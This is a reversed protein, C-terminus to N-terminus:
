LISQIKTMIRRGHPTNKINPLLPQLALSLKSLDDPNAVDLSTQLVYNGFADNLMESFRDKNLLLVKVLSDTLKNIRLSKEIVNSGFKHLSLSIVNSKIHDLITKISEDDGRSLVYQVVYNGFPDLSLNTANGAVEFSLQKRQALNGHDLCRQLVCCGHRHTAIENCHLSATDFIFQNEEPKLKQLCKQVVHNGNLDRSLSVIHPSLSEIILKSEEETSICEVLKQLARTGHPDLAIRIFDSSANKVLIIRQDTSVNEFLKQILYNGFPDIMLEVIKLYIENFIMTAAIDNTLINSNESPINGSLVAERGLDLQRQLFRCGHQDKCLSYMEGSFDELKANTYKSADDGKRRNNNNHNNNHSHLKRHVNMGNNMGNYHNNHRRGGNNNNDINNTNNHNHHNNVNYRGNMMPANFQNPIMPPQIGGTLRNDMYQQGRMAPHGNMYPQHHDWMNAGGMSSHPPPPPMMNTMPPGMNPHHEMNIPMQHHENFNLHNADQENGLVQLDGHQGSFSRVPFPQQPHAPTNANSQNPGSGGDADANDDAKITSYEPFGYMGNSTPPLNGFNQMQADLGGGFVQLPPPTSFPVHLNSINQNNGVPLGNHHLPITSHQNADNSNKDGESTAKQDDPLEFPKVSLSLDNPNSANNGYSFPPASSPVFTSSWTSSPTKSPGFSSPAFGGASPNPTLSGQHPAQYLQQYYKNASADSSAEPHNQNGNGGAYFFQAQQQFQNGNQQTSDVNNNISGDAPSRDKNNSLEFDDDLDLNGLAGVIDLDAGTTTQGSASENIKNTNGPQDNSGKLLDDDISNSTSNSTDTPNFFNSSDKNFFNSGISASRLSTAKSGMGAGASAKLLAVPQNEVDTPTSISASRSQLNATM